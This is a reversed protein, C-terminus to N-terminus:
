LLKPLDPLWKPLPPIQPHGREGEPFRDGVWGFPGTEVQTRDTTPRDLIDDTQLNATHM